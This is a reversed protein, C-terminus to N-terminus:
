RRASELGPPSAVPTTPSPAAHLHPGAHDTSSSLYARGQVRHPEAWRGSGVIRFEEAWQAQRAITGRAVHVLDNM